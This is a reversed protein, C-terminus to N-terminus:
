IKTSRFHKLYKKMENFNSCDIGVILSTPVHQCKTGIIIERTGGELLSPIRAVNVLSRGYEKCEKFDYLIFFDLNQPCNL